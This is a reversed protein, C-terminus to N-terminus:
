VSLVAGRPNYRLIPVGDEVYCHTLYLPVAPNGQLFLPIGKGLIIPIIGVIYEDIMGAKLLPDIAIGGGFLYIDGDVRQRLASIAACVDGHIFHVNGDDAGPRSTIVYVQKDAYDRHFGQDYCRRGMVVASIGKVFEGHSWAIKTNLSPDGAPQIWDYGGDEDAIFGDLSIALNLITKSPM